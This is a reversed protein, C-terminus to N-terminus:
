VAIDRRRFVFVAAASFLACVGVLGLMNGAQVGNLIPDGVFGWYFPNVTNTPEFANILPALGWLVFMLVAVGSSAGIAIARSGTAVGVALALTGFICALLFTALTAGAYGSMPLDMDVIPGFAMLTGASIIALWLGGTLVAALKEILARQRSVPHALLLDMTGDREEGATERAAFGIMFIMFLLPLMNAFLQSNLYGAPSTIELGSGLGLIQQVFDPYDEMLENFSSQDRVSPYALVMLLMLLVIGITWWILARRRSALVRRFVEGRMQM